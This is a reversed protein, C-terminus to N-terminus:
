PNFWTENTVSQPTWTEDTAAETTWTESTTSIAQWGSGGRVNATLVVSGSASGTAIYIGLANGATLAAATITGAISRSALAAGTTTSLGDISGSVPFVAALKDANGTLSAVGASSGAGPRDASVAGSVSAAVSVSGGVPTSRGVGASTAASASVSGAVAYTAAGLSADGSVSAAGTASGDVPRAALAAGSTSAIGDSAGSAAREALVAGQTTAVGASSGAAPRSVEAAGSTSAAASVSGAADYSTAAITAEGVLSASASISGGVPRNVGTAGSTTAAASSSGAAPRQALAAGSTSAAAGSVSGAAPYPSGTSAAKVALTYGQALNELDNFAASFTGTASTSGYYRFAAAAAVYNVSNNIVSAQLFTTAPINPWQNFVTTYNGIGGFALLLTGAVTPTVSPFNINATPAVTNTSASVDFPTTTDAGVVRLMLVNGYTNSSAANTFTYTSPESAGAKKWFVAGHTNGSYYIDGTREIEKTWGAPTDITPTGYGSQSFTLVYAVLLDGEATGAPKNITVDGSSAGVNAASFSPVFPFGSSFSLLEVTVACFGSATGGVSATQSSWSTVTGTTEHLAAECNANSTSTVNTMGSPATDIAVDTSRHGVFALVRSTNDTKYLSAAPFTVTTSSGTTKGVAGLMITEGSDPRYVVAVLAQTTGFSGVTESSSQAYKYVVSCSNLDGGHRSVPSWNLGTPISGASPNGDRYAFVVILDGAQHAPLTATNTGTATGVRTVM